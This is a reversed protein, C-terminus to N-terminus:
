DDRLGKGTLEVFVDELTAAHTALTEVEVGQRELEQLLPPLSEVIRAVTLVFTGDRLALNRV